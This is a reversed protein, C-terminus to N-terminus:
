AIQVSQALKAFQVFQALMPKSNDFLGFTNYVQKIVPSM